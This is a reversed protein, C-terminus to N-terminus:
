LVAMLVASKEAKLDVMEVVKQDVSSEAMKVVM